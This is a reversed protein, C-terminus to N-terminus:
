GALENTSAIEKIEEYFSDELSMLGVFVSWGEETLLISVGRKQLDVLANLMDNKFM